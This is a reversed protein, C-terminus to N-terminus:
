EFTKFPDLFEIKHSGIQIEDGLKFNSQNIKIGNLLTGHNSENDIIKLNKPKIIIECHKRSVNNDPIIIDSNKSRGVQLRDMYLLAYDRKKGNLTTVRCFMDLPVLEDENQFDKLLFISSNIIQNYELTFDNRNITGKLNERELNKFRSEIVTLKTFLLSDENINRKLFELAIEFENSIKLLGIRKYRNLM